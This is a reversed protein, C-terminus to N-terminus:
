ADPATVCQNVHHWSASRSMAPYTRGQPRVGPRPRASRFTRGVRMLHANDLTEDGDDHRGRWWTRIGGLKHGLPYCTTLVVRDVCDYSGTLLDAYRASLEDSAVM